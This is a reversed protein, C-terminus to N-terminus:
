IRENRLGKWWEKRENWKNYFPNKGISTSAIPNGNSPISIKNLLTKIDVGECDIFDDVFHPLKMGRIEDLTNEKM